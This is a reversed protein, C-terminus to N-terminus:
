SLFFVVTNINKAAQYKYGHKGLIHKNPRDVVESQVQFAQDSDGLNDYSIKCVDM